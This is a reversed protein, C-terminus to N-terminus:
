LMEQSIEEPAPDLVKYGQRELLTLVAKPDEGRDRLIQNHLELFLLPAPHGSLVERGGELVAGEFGEVDIKVHTPSRGVQRALEDLSIAPTPTM